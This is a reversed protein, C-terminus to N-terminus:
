GTLYFLAPQDDLFYFTFPTKSLSLSYFTIREKEREIGWHDGTGFYFSDSPGSSFSCPFSAWHQLTGTAFFFLFSNLAEAAAVASHAMLYPIVDVFPESSIEM